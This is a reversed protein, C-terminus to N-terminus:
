RAKFVVAKKMGLFLCLCHCALFLQESPTSSLKQSSTKLFINSFVRSDKGRGGKKKKLHVDKQKLKKVENGV